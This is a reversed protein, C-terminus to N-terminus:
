SSFWDAALWGAAALALLLAFIRVRSPDPDTVLGDRLDFNRFAARDNSLRPAAKAAEASAYLSRVTAM